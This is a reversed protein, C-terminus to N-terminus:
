NRHLAGSNKIGINISADCSTNMSYGNALKMVYVGLKAMRAAGNCAKSAYM